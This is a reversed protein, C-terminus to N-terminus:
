GLRLGNIRVQDLRLDRTHAITDPVTATGVTIDRLLVDQVPAQSVGVISLAQGTDACSVREVTFGRYTPPAKGHRGGHYDTTIDILKDSRRVKLDRVYVQEVMGGRELNGKIYVAQKARHVYLREAFVNAAGGSMESGIAIAGAVNTSMECDRIVVNRTPRAVRWGDRDRGSKIAICDDSVDFRCHEILVDECSDPDVGDSNLHKSVVTVNRITINRSYVPHITWFPSDIFRPGDILVNDCHFFQVFPPRLFHGDGFRRDDVPVGDAGMRRLEAKDGKQRGRWQRFGAGGQGDLTGPGTVAVNQCDHAYILPSLGNVETGEWRTPVIPLEIEGPKGFRLTAGRELHLEVNSKLHVPGNMRWLGAPVVVRGGGAAACADIAAAVATHASADTVAGYDTIAFSAVPFVPPQIRAVIARAVAWDDTAAEKTQASARGAAAIALTSAVFARRDIM